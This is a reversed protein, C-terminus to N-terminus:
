CDTPFLIIPPEQSIKQKWQLLIGAVEEATDRDGKICMSDNVITMLYEAIEKGDEGDKLMRFVQPVYSTYEDRACPLGSVGIPDWIYHLVEDVRSYLKKDAPCFNKEM